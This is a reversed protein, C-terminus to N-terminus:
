GGAEQTGRAPGRRLVRGSGAGSVRGEEVALRGNVLVHHIGIPPQHPEQFTGQDLVTEPDFLVLDADFGEKVLGKNKLRFTQAPLSTMKRVAEELSLVGEERVYRGLVRPFTGTMRPHIKTGPLGPIGDSGIMTLPSKMIRNIDEDSMMFIVMGINTKEEAVLDFFVEFPDRGEEQAVQALSKGLYEPHNQSFSLLLNDFGAGKILNEWEEGGGSEIIAAVEKRVEPKKLKEAYVDPGGAAFSPPLAAALHTSGAPYPYQDCTVELGQARARAMLELTRSSGGWNDKGAIKHHAIHVPTGAARGIALAEEIAELQRDSENRLHTTYLGHYRGAVKALEMIEETRAFHAPVYILGTSLGVAGAEMAEVVLTKMEEIQDPEPQSNEWGLVAIRVTAHGVLPVLNIGPRAAEIEALYDAFTRIRKLAEPLAGGGMLISVKAIFNDRQAPMPALSYGCNGLVVTTVGQLVKMPCNPEALVYGDDHSHTDIFGPCLVLGEASLTREAAAGALSPEIAKIKSGSIGLDARFYPNGTGDIIRAKRIVLDFVEKV